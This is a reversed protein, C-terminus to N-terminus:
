AGVADFSALSWCTAAMGVALLGAACSASLIVFARLNSFDDLPEIPDEDGLGFSELTFGESPTSIFSSPKVVTVYEDREGNSAEYLSHIRDVRPEGDEGLDFNMHLKATFLEDGNGSIASSAADKLTWIAGTQVLWESHIVYGVDVNESQTEWRIRLLEEDDQLIRDLSTIVADGRHGFM